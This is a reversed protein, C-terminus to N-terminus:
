EFIARAEQLIGPIFDKRVIKVRRKEDNIKTEYEYADVERRETPPLANYSDEDVVVVREQVITGDSLITAPTLIREYHHITSQAAPVSGYKKKIWSIFDLYDLPWDFAPDIIDNAIYIVWDLREDGYYKHAITQATQAEEIQHDFFNALRPNVIGKLRYRVLPNQVDLFVGNKNIDYAVKPYYTFFFSM